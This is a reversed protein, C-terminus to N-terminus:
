IETFPWATSGSRSEALFTATLRHGLRGSEPLASPAVLPARWIAQFARLRTSILGHPLVVIRRSM